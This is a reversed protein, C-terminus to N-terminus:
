QTAPEAAPETGSDEAPAPAPSAIRQRYSAFKPYGAISLESNWQTDVFGKLFVKGVQLVPIVNELGSLQKLAEIDQSTKLVKESYPIGRKKLLSHALDCPEGCGNGVYLTVPFNQQAVRTAYPLDEAQGTDTSLKLREVDTADAPLVDGYNMRGNKDVWRYLNGAQAPLIAMAVLLVVIRKM